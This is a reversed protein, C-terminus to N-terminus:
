QNFTDNLLSSLVYNKPTPHVESIGATKQQATALSVTQMVPRDARNIHSPQPLSVQCLCRVDALCVSVHQFTQFLSPIRDTPTFMMVM